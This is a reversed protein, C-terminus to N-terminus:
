MKRFREVHEEHLKNVTKKKTNNILKQNTSSNSTHSGAAYLKHLM